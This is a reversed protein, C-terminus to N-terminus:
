WYLPNSIEYRHNRYEFSVVEGNLYTHIMRRRDHDYKVHRFNGHLFKHHRNIISRKYRETASVLHFHDQSGDQNQTVHYQQGTSLTRLESDIGIYQVTVHFSISNFSHSDTGFFDMLINAGNFSLHRIPTLDLKLIEGKKLSDVLTYGNTFVFFLVKGNPYRRLEVITNKDITLDDIRFDTWNDWLRNHQFNVQGFLRGFLRRRYHEFNVEEFFDKGTFDTIDEIKVVYIKNENENVDDIHVMENRNRDYCAIQIPAVDVPQEGLREYWLQSLYEPFPFGELGGTIM